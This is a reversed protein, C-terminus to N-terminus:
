IHRSLNQFNFFFCVNMKRGKWTAGNKAEEICYYLNKICDHFKEITM